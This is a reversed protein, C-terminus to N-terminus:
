EQIRELEAWDRRRLDEAVQTADAVVVAILADPHILEQAAALIADRDVLGLRDAFGAEHDPPLAHILLNAYRNVLAAPTEFHRPQGEILARRADDLETQTPPRTTLMERLEQNIDDLAEGVRNSQVGASISFPGAGRRCDFHSRVGYTFGREERLKENLRSTFQGGLVQNFLLMPDYLSDLRALGGHGVRVVAQAAGPRDILLIRPSAARGARPVEPLTLAPGAWASLRRDLEEALLQPEVAGAVVVTAGSPVLSRRHFAKLHDATLTSVRAATGNIPFRYPHEADYLAALM